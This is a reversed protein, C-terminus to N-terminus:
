GFGLWVGGHTATLKPFDGVRRRLNRVEPDHEHVRAVKVAEEDVSRCFKLSRGEYLKVRAELIEPMEKVRWHVNCAGAM